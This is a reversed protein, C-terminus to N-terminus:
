ERFQKPLRILQVVTATLFFAAGYWTFREATFFVWKAYLPISLLLLIIGLDAMLRPSRKYLLFALVVFFVIDQLKM